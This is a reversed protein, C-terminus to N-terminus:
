EIGIIKKAETETRAAVDARPKYIVQDGVKLINGIDFYHSGNPATRREYYLEGDEVRM